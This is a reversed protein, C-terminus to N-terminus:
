PWGRVEVCAVIVLAPFGRPESPNKLHLNSLRSHPLSVGGERQAGGLFAGSCLVEWEQWCHPQSPSFKTRVSREESGGRAGVKSHLQLATEWTREETHTGLSALM